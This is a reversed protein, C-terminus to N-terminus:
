HDSRISGITLAKPLSFEQLLKIIAEAERVVQELNEVLHDAKIERGSKLTLLQLDCIGLIEVIRSYLEFKKERM